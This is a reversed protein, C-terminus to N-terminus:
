GHRALSSWLVAPDALSRQAAGADTSRARRRSSAYHASEACCPQPRVAACRACLMGEVLAAEEERHVRLPYQTPNVLLRGCRCRPGLANPETTDITHDGFRLVGSGSAVQATDTFDVFLGQATIADQEVDDLAVLAWAPVLGLLGTDTHFRSGTTDCYTRPGLAALFATVEFASRGGLAVLKEVPLHDTEVTVTAGLVDTGPAPPGLRTLSGVGRNYDDLSDLLRQWQEQTLALGPDGLWYTGPEVQATASIRVAGDAVPSPQPQPYPDRQAGYAEPLDPITSMQGRYTAQRVCRALVM